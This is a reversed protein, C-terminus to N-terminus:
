TPELPRRSARGIISWVPSGYASAWGIEIVRCVAEYGYWSDPDDVTGARAADVWLQLQRDYAWGFREVFSPTIDGGRRGDTGSTVLKGDLGILASGCEGVLVEIRVKYAIGTRVFCEDTVIVGSETEFLV